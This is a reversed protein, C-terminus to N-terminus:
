TAARKYSMVSRQPMATKGSRSSRCSSLLLLLIEANINNSMFQRTAGADLLGGAQPSSLLIASAM